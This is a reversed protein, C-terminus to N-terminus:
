TALITLATLGQVVLLDGQAGLIDVLGILRWLGFDLNCPFTLEAKIDFLGVVQERLQREKLSLRQKTSGPPLTLLIATRM